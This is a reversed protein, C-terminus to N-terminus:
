VCEQVFTFKALLTCLGFYFDEIDNVKGQSLFFGPYNAGNVLWGNLPM